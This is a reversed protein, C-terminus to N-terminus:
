DHLNLKNTDNVIFTIIGHVNNKPLDDVYLHQNSFVYHIGYKTGGDYKGNKGWFERFFRRILGARWLRRLRTVIVRRYKNKTILIAMKQIEQYQIPEDHPFVRLLQELMLMDDPTVKDLKYVPDVLEEMLEHLEYVIRNGVGAEIYNAM